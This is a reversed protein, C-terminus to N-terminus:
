PGDAENSAPQIFNLLARAEAPGLFVELPKIHCAIELTLTFGQSGVCPRASCNVLIPALDQGMLVICGEMDWPSGTEILAKHEACVYAEHYDTASKRHGAVFGSGPKTCRLVTCTLM